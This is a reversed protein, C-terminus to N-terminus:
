PTPPRKRRKSLRGPIIAHPGQPGAATPGTLGTRRSRGNLPGHAPAAPGTGPSGRHVDGRTSGIGNRGGTARRARAPQAGERQREGGREGRRQGGARVRRRRRHGRMERGDLDEVAGVVRQQRDVHAAAVAPDDARRTVLVRDADAVVGARADERHRGDVADVRDGALGGRGVLAAVHELGIARDLDRAPALAEGVGRREIEGVDGVAIGRTGTTRAVEADDADGHEAFADRHAVRRSRLDGRLARLAAVGGRRRARGRWRLFTRGRGAHEALLAVSGAFALTRRLFALGVVRASPVPWPRM